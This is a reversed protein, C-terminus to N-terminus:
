FLGVSPSEYVGGVCRLQRNNFEDGMKIIMVLVVVNYLWMWYLEQCSSMNKGLTERIGSKGSQRKVSGQQGSM